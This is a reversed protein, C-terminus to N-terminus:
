GQSVKLVAISGNLIENPSPLCGDIQPDVPVLDFVRPAKGLGSALKGFKEVVVYM